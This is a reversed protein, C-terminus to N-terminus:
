PTEKSAIATLDSRLATLDFGNPALGAEIWLPDLVAWAETVYTWFWEVTAIKIGGWTALKVTSRDYGLLAMAHGGWSNREWQPGHQQPLAVDWVQQDQAALPLDAGVYLGGFLNVGCEVQWGVLPDVSVFASIFQDGMGDARLVRLVDLMQAGQDTEPRSPDYGGAQEYLAIVDSDVLALPRETNAAQAQFLHAIAACTCDGIQDNAWM